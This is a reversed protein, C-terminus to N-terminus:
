VQLGVGRGLVYGANLGAKGPNESIYRRFRELQEISRVIHDFSEDQWVAGTRGLNKNLEHATYSKWSHLIRGLNESAAVRVLLHVHNPMVVFRDLVYREGDFYQLAAGVLSGLQEDALICAGMGADLWGDLREYFERYSQIELVNWPKPHHMLWQERDSKWSRLRSNPISDALRFTVFYTVGSQKWHPLHRGHKDVEAEKDFPQFTDDIPFEEHKM